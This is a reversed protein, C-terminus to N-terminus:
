TKMKYITREVTGTGLRIWKLRATSLPGLLNATMFHSLYLSSTLRRVPRVKKWEDERETMREREAWARRCRDEKGEDEKDRKLEEECFSREFNGESRVQQDHHQGRTFLLWEGM